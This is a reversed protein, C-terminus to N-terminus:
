SLSEKRNAIESNKACCNMIFNSRFPSCVFKDYDQIINIIYSYYTCASFYCFSFYFACPLFFIYAVVVNVVAVIVFASLFFCPLIYLFVSFSICVFTVRLSMSSHVISPLTILSLEFLIHM